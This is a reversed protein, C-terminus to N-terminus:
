KHVIQSQTILKLLPFGRNRVNLMKDICLDSGPRKNAKSTDIGDPCGIDIARDLRMLCTGRPSIQGAKYGVFM